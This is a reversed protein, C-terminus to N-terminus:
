GMMERVVCTLSMARPLTVGGTLVFFIVDTLATRVLYWLRFVIDASIGFGPTVRHAILFHPFHGLISSLPLKSQSPTRFLSQLHKRHFAFAANVASTLCRYFMLHHSPLRSVGGLPFFIGSRLSAKRNECATRYIHSNGVQESNAAANAPRSDSTTESSAACQKRSCRRHVAEQTM